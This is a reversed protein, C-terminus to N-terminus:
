SNTIIINKYLQIDVEIKEKEISDAREKQVFFAKIYRDDKIYGKKVLIDQIQKVMNDGDALSYNKIHFHYIVFLEGDLPKQRADKLLLNVDYEFKLYYLSKKRIGKWAKNVSLPGIPISIQM